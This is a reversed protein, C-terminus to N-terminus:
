LVFKPVKFGFLTRRIWSFYQNLLICRTLDIVLFRYIRRFMHQWYLRRIFISAELENCISPHLAKLTSLPRVQQIIDSIRFCVHESPSSSRGIWPGKGIDNGYRCFTGVARSCSGTELPPGCTDQWFGRRSNLQFIPLCLM